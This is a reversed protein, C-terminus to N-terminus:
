SWGFIHVGGNPNNYCGADLPTDVDEVDNCVNSVSFIVGVGDDWGCSYPDANTPKGVTSDPNGQGCTAAISQSLSFNEVYIAPKQYSKKM